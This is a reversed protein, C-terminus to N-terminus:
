RVKALYTAQIEANPALEQNFNWRLHTYAEAPAPREEVKGNALTVKVIPNAVFTKGQDISYTITAGSSTASNLSYVTGKAIKQTFAVDKATKNGENRGTVTFRIIDGPKVLTKEDLVKWSVVEKGQADKKIQKQQAVLNLNVKPQRLINDAIETGVNVLRAIAPMNDIPLVSLLTVTIGLGTLYIRKNM